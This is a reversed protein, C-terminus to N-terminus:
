NHTRHSIDNLLYHFKMKLGFMYMQCFDQNQACWNNDSPNKVSKMLNSLINSLSDDVTTKNNVIFEATALLPGCWGRPSNM